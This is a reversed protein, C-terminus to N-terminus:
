GLYSRIGAILIAQIPRFVPGSKIFRLICGFVPVHISHILESKVDVLGSVFLGILIPHPRSCRSEDTINIFHGCIHFGHLEWM